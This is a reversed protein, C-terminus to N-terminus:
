GLLYGGAAAAIALFLVRYGHCCRCDTGYTFADMIALGVRQRWTQQIQIAGWLSATRPDPSCGDQEMVLSQDYGLMWAVDIASSPEHWDSVEAPGPLGCHEWKATVRALWHDLETHIEPANAWEYRFTCLRGILALLWEALRTM